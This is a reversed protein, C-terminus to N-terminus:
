NDKISETGSAVHSSWWFGMSADFCILCSSPKQQSSTSAWSHPRGWQQNESYCCMSSSLLDGMYEEKNELRQSTRCATKKVMVHNIVDTTLVWKTHQPVGQSSSSHPTKKITLLYHTPTPFVTVKYKPKLFDYLHRTYLSSVNCRTVSQVPLPGMTDSTVSLTLSSEQATQNFWTSRDAM